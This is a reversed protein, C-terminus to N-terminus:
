AGSRHLPRIHPVYMTPLYYRSPLHYVPDGRRHNRYFRAPSALISHIGQSLCAPPRPAPFCLSTYVYMSLMTPLWSISHSQCVGSLCVYSPYQYSSLYRHMYMYHRDRILIILYRLDTLTLMLACPISWIDQITLVLFCFEHGDM